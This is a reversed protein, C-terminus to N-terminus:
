STQRLHFNKKLFLCLKCIPAHLICDRIIQSSDALDFNMDFQISCRIDSAEHIVQLRRKQVRDGNIAAIVKFDTQVRLVRSEFLRLADIARQTSRGLIPTCRM